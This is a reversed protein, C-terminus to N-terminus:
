CFMWKHSSSIFESGTGGYSLSEPVTEVATPTLYMYVCVYLAAIEVCLQLRSQFSHICARLCVCWARVSGYRDCAMRLHNVAGWAYGFRDGLAQSVGVVEEYSVQPCTGSLKVALSQTSSSLLTALLHPHIHSHLM